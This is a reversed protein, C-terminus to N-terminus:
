RLTMLRADPGYRVHTSKSLMDSRDHPRLVGTHLDLTGNQCHLLYPDRDFVGPAVSIGPEFQALKLMSARAAASESKKAWWRRTERVREEDTVTAEDTIARVTSKVRQEVRGVADPVWLSGDWDFWGGLEECYRVDRGHIDVLREANGSDTFPREGETYRAYVRDVIARADAEPYPDPEGTTANYCRGAASVILWSAYPQETRM